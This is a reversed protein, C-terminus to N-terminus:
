DSNNTSSTHLGDRASKQTNVVLICLPKRTDLKGYFEPYINSIRDNGDSTIRTWCFEDCTPRSCGRLLRNEALRFCLHQKLKQPLIASFQCYIWCRLWNKSRGKIKNFTKCNPLVLQFFLFQLSCRIKLAKWNVFSFINVLQKDFEFYFFQFWFLVVM